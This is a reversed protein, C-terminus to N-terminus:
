NELLTQLVKNPDKGIFKTPDQIFKEPITTMVYSKKCIARTHGLLTAVQDYVENLTKKKATESEPVTKVKSMITLFLINSAYTRFDKCTFDDGTVERLYNNMDIATIPEQDLTQFLKEGPIKLLEKFIKVSQPDIFSLHQKIGKKGIFKFSIKDNKITMHKKLLTTLGYTNNEEAYQENGIRSHTKLLVHFIFAILYTRKLLIAGSLIKQIHKKLQDIKQTFRQLRDYKDIKSLEVWMPHYIYQTKGREDVGSVQVYNTPDEAVHVDKWMPPICLQKVRDQDDKSILKGNKYYYTFVIANKKKLPPGMKRTITLNGKAM